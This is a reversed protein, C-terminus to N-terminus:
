RRLLRIDGSASSLYVRASGGSGVTGRLYSRRRSTVNIPFDVDIDGSATEMEVEGAFSASLVAEATGSATELEVNRVEGDLEARVSGSASEAKLTPARSRTVRIDGSATELDISTATAETVRISGSAVEIKISASRAGNVTIGGSASELDLDGDVNTVSIGGSASEANLNGRHGTVTINGSSNELELEGNVANSTIDGVALNADLRVNAPVRVVLDAQAHLADSDARDGSRINVRRGDRTRGFTGEEDVRLNTNSGRQLQPAVIEDAPYIVRLTPVGDIANSRITLRSADRGGKTVEVVTTSGTGPEIRINGALNYLAVHNGSLEYRQAHVDVPANVVLLAPVVFRLLKM